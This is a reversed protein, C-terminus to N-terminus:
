KRRHKEEYLSPPNVACMLPVKVCVRWLHLLPLIIFGGLVLGDAAVLSRGIKFDPLLLEPTMSM